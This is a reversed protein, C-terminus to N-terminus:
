ILLVTGHDVCAYLVLVLYRMLVVRSMAVNVLLQSHTKNYEYVIEDIGHLPRRDLFFHSSGVKGSRANCVRANLPYDLEIGVFHKNLACLFTKM